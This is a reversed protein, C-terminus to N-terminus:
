STCKISGKPLIMTLGIWVSGDECVDWERREDFGLWTRAESILKLEDDTLEQGM